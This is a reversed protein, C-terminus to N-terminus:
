RLCEDDGSGQRVILDEFGRLMEHAIARGDPTPSVDVFADNDAHGDEM